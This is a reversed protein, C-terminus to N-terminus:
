EHVMDEVAKIQIAIFFLSMKSMNDLPLMLRQYVDEIDEDHIGKQFNEGGFLLHCDQKLINVVKWLTLHYEGMKM